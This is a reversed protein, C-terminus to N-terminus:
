KIIRNIFLHSFHIKGNFHIIKFLDNEYYENGYYNEHYINNELQTSYKNKSRLKKTISKTKLEELFKAVKKIDYIENEWYIRKYSLNEYDDEYNFQNNKFSYLFYYVDFKNILPFCLREISQDNTKALIGFDFFPSFVTYLLLLCNPKILYSLIILNELLSIEMDVFNNDDRSECVEHKKRLTQAVKIIIEIQSM